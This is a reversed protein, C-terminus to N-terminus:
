SGYKRRITNRGYHENYDAEAKEKSLKKYFASKIAEAEKYRKMRDESQSLRDFMESLESLSLANLDVTEAASAATEEDLAKTTEEVDPAATVEPVFDESM